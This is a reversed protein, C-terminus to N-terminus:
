FLLSISYTTDTRPTQRQPSESPISDLDKVHFIKVEVDKPVDPLVSPLM